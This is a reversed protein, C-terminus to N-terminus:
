KIIASTEFKRYNTYTSECNIKEVSARGTEAYNQRNSQTYTERMVTPVWLGLKPNDGYTTEIKATITGTTLELRTFEVRGSAPEVIIEGHTFVPAGNTGSILTPRDQEKFSITVRPSPGASVAERHFKFRGKHKAAMVLLALTPENFTRSVNGINFQSNKRAIVAGLRSLPTREMLVRINEPDDVVAGDVERVDRAAIWISEAPLFTIFLDATTTRTWIQFPGDRTVRQTAVEDALVNRMKTSYGDVYESAVAVVDKLSTNVAAKQAVLSSTAVLTLCAGTWFALPARLNM